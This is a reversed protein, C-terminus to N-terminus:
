HANAKGIRKLFFLLFSLEIHKSLQKFTKGKNKM